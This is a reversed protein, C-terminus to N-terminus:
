KSQRSLMSGDSPWLPQFLHWQHPARKILEELEDAILQTVEAVQARFKGQRETPIPPNVVGYYVRGPGRYVAATMLKAGTRLALAAPGAPLTTREDFFEVEVGNGGLDRDCILGVVEGKALASILHSTADSNLGFVKIGVAQRRKRFWEFLEIPKLEEAVTTMPHGMLDLWAGGHDFSGLHPLALIVGREQRMADFLYDGGELILFSEELEHRKVLEELKASEMWYLAYSQFSRLVEREILQREASQGIVRRLHRTVLSRREPMTAFLISGITLSLPRVTWSPLLQLLGYLSRFMWYTTSESRM